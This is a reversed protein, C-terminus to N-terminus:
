EGANKSIAALRADIAQVDAGTATLRLQTLYAVDDMLGFADIVAAAQAARRKWAELGEGSEAPTTAADVLAAKRLRGLLHAKVTDDGPMAPPGVGIRELLPVLQRQVVEPNARCCERFSPAQLNMVVEGDRIHTARFQSASQVLQASEDGGDGEIAWRISLTGDETTIRLSDNDHQVSLSTAGGERGQARFAFPGYRTEREFDQGNSRAGSGTLGPVIGKQRANDATRGCAMSLLDAPTKEPEFYARETSDDGEQANLGRGRGMGASPDRLLVLAALREAKDRPLGQAVAEDAVVKPLREVTARAAKREREFDKGYLREQMTSVDWALREERWGLVVHQALIKLVGALPEQKAAEGQADDAQAGVADDAASAPTVRFGCAAGLVAAVALVGLYDLCPFRM